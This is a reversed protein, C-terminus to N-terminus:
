LIEYGCKMLISTLAILPLGVISTHDDSEIREFLAIGRSELRYSGACDLPQDAALYRAIADSPLPRMTLTTLDVHTHIKGEHWVCVATVLRHSRGTLFSLQEVAAELTEPKGLIRGEVDVVQDCGIITALPHKIVMKLAKETALTRALEVPGIGDFKFKNEDIGSPLCEFPIGLRMLLERRYLSTSALILAM